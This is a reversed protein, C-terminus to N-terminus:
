LALTYRRAVADAAVLDAVTLPGGNAARASKVANVLAAPGEIAELDGGSALRKRLTAQTEPDAFTVAQMLAVAPRPLGSARALRYANLFRKADRPSAAALPALATLLATEGSTLPETLAEAATPDPTSSTPRGGSALLRAVIRESDIATRGPLNVVVQLWKDFRRRAEVPAGLGAALRVPDLAMVGVAGAGILSHAADMWAVAEAPPLADLNDIVFVLRDPAGAASGAGMRESLAALFARAAAAPSHAGDLFNPGPAREKVKGSARRAATEAHRAAADAEGTLTVVRQNLRAIRNDLDRRRDRVDLNLLQAGRLLVTAFGIARWLNLALALAGIVYLIKAITEFLSGHAAIWGTAKATSDAVFAGADSPVQVADLAQPGHLLHVAFGLLFAVIAWVILGRQGPYTWIARLAVGLRGGGSLSATDRVLDRYSAGADLGALDFRRLRADITARRTRAFVDVRSGPTEFLLADALRARRTEAEDAHTREAELRRVIDDHRDSAAKAAQLPDGAHASEDLLPAYDVGNPERDLAAYAASALAVSTEAGGSADVRAVVIRALGGAKGALAEIADTLRGLAFTKGSGSPGAIAALFPTQAPEAVCLQALPMVISVADLVDAGQAADSLFIPETPRGPPTLDLAVSPAAAGAEAASPAEVIPIDGTFPTRAPQSIESL